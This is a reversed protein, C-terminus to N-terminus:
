KVSASKTLQGALTNALDVAAARFADVAIQPNSWLTACDDVNYASGADMNIDSLIGASGGRQYSYTIRLITAGTRSNTVSAEFLGFPECGGGAIPPNMNYYAREITVEVVADATTPTDVVSYGDRALSKAVASFTEAGIRLGRKLVVDNLSPHSASPTWDFDGPNRVEVHREYIPKLFISHVSVLQAQDVRATTCGTAAGSLIIFAGCVASRNVHIRWITLEKVCTLRLDFAFLTV